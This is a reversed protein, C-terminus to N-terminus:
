DTISMTCRRRRNNGSLRPASVTTSIGSSIGPQTVVNPQNEIANNHYDACIVDKATFMGNPKKDIPESKTDEFKTNGNVRLNDHIDKEKIERRNELPKDEPKKMETRKSNPQLERMNNKAIEKERSRRSDETTKKHNISNSEHSRQRQIDNRSKSHSRKERRREQSRSRRESSRHANDRDRKSSNYRADRNNDRAIKTENRNNECGEKVTRDTSESKQRKLDQVPSTRNDRRRKNNNRRFLVDDLERRLEAIIRDKRAVETKATKFLSSINTALSNQIQKM